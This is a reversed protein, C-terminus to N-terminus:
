RGRALGSPRPRGADEAGAGIGLPTRACSTSGTPTSSPPRPAPPSSSSTATGPASTTSRRSCRRRRPASSARRVRQEADRTPLELGEIAEQERERAEKGRASAADLVVSAAASPDFANDRYAGRAARPGRRARAQEDLSAARDLRGGAIRALVAVEAADLAPAQNAIWQEVAARSLLRFPVLQCRSRITEPLSGLEDAVLVLTAYAPAGRPGQPARGVGRREDPRRRLPPVRRDAEFPRMHLDHHLRRIEDIRIMEGLAEIVRLDPHTGADVRRPDGLLVEALAGAATRKGVGAPGHFLYAHAPGDALAADLLRKAEPQEPVDAFTAVSRRRSTPSPAGATWSSTGSCTGPPSRRIRAPSVCGSTGGAREIRDRDASRALATEPDIEILFTRDPLLGGVVALNLDLVADLGLGRGVGQYAVSSDVYRDCVVTAGRELAPRIVQEVHQARAAAYLAAEAWPAVHDGHLLPRPDVRRAAHEAGADLRRRRGRGRSVRRPTAGSHDQRLRRARRLHRVDAPVNTPQAPHAREDGAPGTEDARVEDVREEGTAVVDDHDVVEARAPALVDVRRRREDLVVDALREVGVRVDDEM